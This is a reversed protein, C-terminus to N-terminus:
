LWAARCDRGRTGSFSVGQLAPVCSKGVRYAKHLGQVQLLTAHVESDNGSPKGKAALGAAAIISAVRRRTVTNRERSYPNYGIEGCAQNALAVSHTAGNDQFSAAHGARSICKDRPPCLRYPSPLDKFPYTKKRPMRGYGFSLAMARHSIIWVMFV